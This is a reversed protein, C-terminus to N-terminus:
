LQHERLARGADRQLPALM